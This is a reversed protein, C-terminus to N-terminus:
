GRGGGGRTRHGVRRASTVGSTARVTGARSSSRPAASSDRVVIRTPLVESAVEGPPHDLQQLLLEAARHGLDQVPQHVTTVGVSGALDHDDFGVVSVDDPVRLGRRRLVGMAAIAIEDSFCVVGTPPEPRADLIREMATAAADLSWDTVYSWTDPVEVSAAALGDDVGAMRATPGAFRFPEHLSGSILAIEHHGLAVLHEVLMRAAVRDDIGVTPVLGSHGGAVVVAVETGVLRQLEQEDFPVDVLVLGDVRKRFSLDRLFRDRETHDALVIALLDYGAESWVAHMAAMMRSSYWSDLRPVVIGLTRTRGAALRAASPDSVYDLDRAAVEVRRRTEDAVNPLGRLARSVTAVSVGARRAVDEISVVTGAERQRSRRRRM